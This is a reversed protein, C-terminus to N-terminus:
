IYCSTLTNSFIAFQKDVDNNRLAKDWVFQDIARQILDANARSYYWVTREYPPPYHLSLDFKTCVLQHNPHLSPQIGSEM